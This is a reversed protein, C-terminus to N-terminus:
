FWGDETWLQPHVIERKQYRLSVRNTLSVPLKKPLSVEPEPKLVTKPKTSTTSAKIAKPQPPASLSGLAQRGAPASVVQAPIIVKVLPASVVAKIPAPTAAEFPATVVGMVPSSPIAKVPCSTIAKVIPAPAPVAVVAEITESVPLSAKIIKQETKEVEVPLSVKNDNAKVVPVTSAVAPVPVNKVTPKKALVAIKSTKFM